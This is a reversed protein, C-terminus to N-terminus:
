DLKMEYLPLYRSPEGEMPAPVRGVARAGMHAYFRAANPDSEIRVLSAGSAHAVSMMHEFMARGAGRGQRSPHIWFHDLFWTDGRRVLAAFGIPEGDQVAVRVMQRRIYEPTIELETAWAALWGAPYGWGAKADRALATLAPADEPRAERFQLKV